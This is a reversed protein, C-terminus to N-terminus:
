PAVEALRVTKRFLHAAARVSEVSGTFLLMPEGAFAALDETSVEGLGVLRVEFPAAPPQIQEQLEALASIVWDHPRWTPDIGGRVAYGHASACAHRKALDILPGEGNAAACRPCVLRTEDGAGHEVCFRRRACGSCVGVKLTEAEM